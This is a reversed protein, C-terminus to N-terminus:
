ASRRWNLWSRNPNATGHQFRKGGGTGKKIRQALHAKGPPRITSCEPCSFSEQLLKAETPTQWGPIQPRGDGGDGDGDDGRARM